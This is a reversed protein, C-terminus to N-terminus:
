VLRTRGTLLEQMMAQKLACTKERRHELASLEADMDTLVDAIGTQEALTSAALFSFNVFNKQYLHTITSGAQLRVLFEDFIASTLVYFFYRPNYANDKPRIVFVGSNLTAPAPLEDVFAVKGITGDKTLLIDSPRLQINRDQRYRQAAVYCCNSWVICGDSFDTGTVLLFQGTKLYEATTLGQWGIRAKLTSNEAMNLRFWEHHFGPLRTRGTLLQQMVAQKLDRKKAVLRALGCLSEDIDGL